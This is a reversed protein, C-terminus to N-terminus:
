RKTKRGYEFDLVLGGYDKLNTLYCKKCIFFIIRGDCMARFMKDKPLKKKCRDCIEM